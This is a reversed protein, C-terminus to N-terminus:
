AKGIAPHGPHNVIFESAISRITTAWNSGEVARDTGFFPALFKSTIHPNNLTSGREAIYRSRLKLIALMKDQSIRRTGDVTVDPASSYEAATWQSKHLAKADGISYTDLKGCVDFLDELRLRHPALAALKFDISIKSEIEAIWPEMDVPTMCLCKLLEPRSGTKSYFGIVFMKTRWKRIHEMSVDRATSVTSGTTSKVEVELQYKKGAVHVTLEADTGARSHAHDWTLNFLRVLEREREDDQVPM